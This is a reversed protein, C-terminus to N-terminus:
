DGQKAIADNTSCPGDTFGVPQGEVCVLYTDWGIREDYGGYKEVTIASSPVKLIVALADITPEIERVTEMSEALGGRHDRYKM